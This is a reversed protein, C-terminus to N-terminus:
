LAARSVPKLPAASPHARFNRDLLPLLYDSLLKLPAASPHARFYSCPFESDRDKPGAEIPGRESSRPFVLEDLRPTDSASLKLPAASPHARFYGLM